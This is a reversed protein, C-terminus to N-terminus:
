APADETEHIADTLAERLATFGPDSRISRAPKGSLFDQSFSIEVSQAIRGPRGSLVIVRTGLFLAEEVSHTILMVGAGSANWTRLILEQMRERTMADLAGLPEDMLLFHPDAALARAIGVRQRQGGSLEWVHRQGFEPLGVAQLLANTREAQHARSLGRLRLPLAINEAVSLWPLLADDQFVVAREPGPGLVPVGDCAISGKTPLVFGAALNLLSTKGAGSRGLVTVFAGREIVLDVGDLVAAAPASDRRSPRYALGVRDFVLSGM